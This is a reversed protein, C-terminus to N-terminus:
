ISYDFSYGWSSILNPNLSNCYGAAVFEIITYKASLDSYVFSQPLGYTLDEGEYPKIQCTSSLKSKDLESLLYSNNFRMFARNLLQYSATTILDYNERNLLVVVGSKKYKGGACLVLKEDFIITYLSAKDYSGYCKQVAADIKSKTKPANIKM